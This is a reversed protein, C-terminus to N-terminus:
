INCDELLTTCKDLIKGPYELFIEVLKGTSFTKFYRLRALSRPDFVGVVRFAQSMIYKHGTVHHIDLKQKSSRFLFNSITFIEASVPINIRSPIAEHREETQERTGKM